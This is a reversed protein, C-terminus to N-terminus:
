KFEIGTLVSTDQLASKLMSAGIMGVSGLRQQLAAEALVRKATVPDMADIKYPEGFSTAPPLSIIASTQPEMGMQAYNYFTANYAAAARHFQALDRAATDAGIQGQAIQTVLVQVIREMDKGRLNSAGPPLDKSLTDVIAVVKNNALQPISGNKVNSLMALYEPKYANFVGGPTDDWAASNLAKKSAFSHASYKLDVALAAAADELIDKDSRKKAGPARTAVAEAAVERDVYAQLATSSREVFAGLGPNTRKITAIDGAATRVTGLAAPLSTGFQGTLAAQYIADARDKPMRKLMDINLDVQYGLTRGTDAILKNTAALEAAKDEATKLREAAAEAIAARQEQRAQEQQRWQAVSMEKAFVDSRVGYAESALRQAEMERAGVKSINDARAARLRIQAAQTEMENKRLALENAQDATNAALISDKDRIMATRAAINQRASDRRQTAEVEQNLIANHRAAVAPLQLQAAIYALPNELLNASSLREVQRMEQSRAQELATREQEAANYNAISRVYENEVVDPDMGAQAVYKQRALAIRHDLAAGLAGVTAGRQVQAAEAQENETLLGRIQATDAAHAQQAAGIQQTRQQAAGILGALVNNLDM